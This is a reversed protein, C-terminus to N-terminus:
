KKLFTQIINHTENISVQLTENIIVKDFEKNRSIEEEVKNLRRKLSETTESGRTILRQKLALLSPPMIFISLTKSPFKSKINLAGVVDLDFIVHKKFEWLHEIESKLTGYYQNIYVEEWELFENDNIKQKFVKPTLFYYDKGERESARKPRSCASVSFALSTELKVLRNVISTKGSGSPGSIVILKGEM